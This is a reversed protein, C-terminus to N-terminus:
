AIERERKRKSDRSHVVREDFGTHVFERPAFPQTPQGLHGFSEQYEQHIENKLTSTSDHLDLCVFDPKAIADMNIGM